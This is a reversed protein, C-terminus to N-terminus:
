IKIKKTIKMEFENQKDKTIEYKMNYKEIVDPLKCPFMRHKYILIENDKLDKIANSGLVLPHPPELESVDLIIERQNNM